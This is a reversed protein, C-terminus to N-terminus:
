VRTRIIRTHYIYTEVDVLNQQLLCNLNLPFCYVERDLEPPCRKNQPLTLSEEVHLLSANSKTMILKTLTIIVIKRRIETLCKFEQRDKVSNMDSSNETQLRTERRGPVRKEFTGFLKRVQFAMNEVLVSTGKTCSTEPPYM